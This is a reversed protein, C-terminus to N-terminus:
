PSGLYTKHLWISLTVPVQSLEHARSLLTPYVHQMYIGDQSNIVRFSNNYSVGLLLLLESHRSLSPSVMRCIFFWACVTRTPFLPAHIMSFMVVPWSTNMPCIVKGEPKSAHIECFMGWLFWVHLLLIQIGGEEGLPPELCNFVKKLSYVIKLSTLVYGM